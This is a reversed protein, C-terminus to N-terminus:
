ESVNQLGQGQATLFGQGLAMPKSWPLLWWPGGEALPPTMPGHQGMWPLEAVLLVHTGETVLSLERSSGGWWCEGFVERQEQSGFGDRFTHTSGSVEEQVSGQRQAPDYSWEVSPSVSGVQTGLM